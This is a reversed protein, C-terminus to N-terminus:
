ARAEPRQRAMVDAATIAVGPRQRAQRLESQAAMGRFDQARLPAYLRGPAYLYDPMRRAGYRPQTHSTLQARRTLVDIPDVIRGPPPLVGEYGLIRGRENVAPPHTRDRSARWARQAVEAPSLLWAAGAIGAVIAVTLWPDPRGRALGRWAPPITRFLNPLRV